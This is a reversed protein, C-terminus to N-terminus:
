YNDEILEGSIEQIIFREDKINKPVEAKTITLKEEGMEELEQGLAYALKRYEFPNQERFLEALILTYFLQRRITSVIRPQSALHEMCHKAVIENEISQDNM